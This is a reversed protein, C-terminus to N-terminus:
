VIIVNLYSFLSDCFPGALIIKSELLNIAAVWDGSITHDVVVDDESKTKRVARKALHRSEFAKTSNSFLDEDKPTTDAIFLSRGLSILQNGDNM